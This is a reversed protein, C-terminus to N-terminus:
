PKDPLKEKGHIFIFLSLSIKKGEAGLTLSLSTTFSYTPQNGM